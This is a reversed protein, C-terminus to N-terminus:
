SSSEGAIKQADEENVRFNADKLCEEILRNKLEIGERSSFLEVAAKASPKVEHGSDDTLGRWTVILTEYFFEADFRPDDAGTLSMPNAADDVMVTPMRSKHKDAFEARRARWEQNNLSLRRITVIFGGGCNAEVENRRDYKKLAKSFSM